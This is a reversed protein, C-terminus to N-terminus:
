QLFQQIDRWCFNFAIDKVLHDDDAGIHNTLYPDLGALIGKTPIPEREVLALLQLAVTPETVYTNILHILHKRLQDITIMASTGSVSTFLIARPVNANNQVCSVAPVSQCDSRSSECM